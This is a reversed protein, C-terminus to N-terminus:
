VCGGDDGASKVPAALYGSSGFLVKRDLFRNFHDCTPEGLHMCAHCAGGNRECAPDLPCRSEAHVLTSLFHHLDNEFVAQLGGLVFDGRTAAFIFFTLHRPVLYEGLGERDVGAFVSLQRIVRHSYSHVLALLDEGLSPVEEPQTFRSPVRASAAIAERIARGGRASPIDHGRALLWGYVRAADLQFMLAEAQQLDAYVRYSSGAGHFRSLRASGPDMGGRTFGYVAKLVPFRDILDVGTLGARNMSVPYDHELLKRHSSTTKATILDTVLARSESTALAIDVAEREAADILESPADALLGLTDESALHGEKNAVDAMKEAVTRPIGQAMLADVISSETARHIDPSGEFGSLAWILSRRKGGGAIIKQMRERSPPNILVFTQPSYVSAARHVNYTINKGNKRDSYSKGCPCARHGFGRRLVNECVPCDFTIKAAEISSQHRMRTESHTPCRPIIPAELRGCEHFGVFHLQRLSDHGARCAKPRKGTEVRRCVQCVWVEPFREVRVGQKPNVRVVEIETGAWLSKVVGPDLGGAVWGSMEDILRQRVMSDEVDITIAGKWEASKWIGGRLDATQEPLLGYLVQSGSRQDKM